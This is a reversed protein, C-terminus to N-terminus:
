GPAPAPAPAVELIPPLKNGWEGKKNLLNDWQYNAIMDGEKTQRVLASKNMFVIKIQFNDPSDPHEEQQHDALPHGEQGGRLTDLHEVGRDYSTRASEDIYHETEKNM